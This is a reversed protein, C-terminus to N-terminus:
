FRKVGVIQYMEENSIALEIEFYPELLLSLEQIDPLKSSIHAVKIHHKELDEKSMSHAISISGGSKTCRSLNSILSDRNVFHPFANYIMVVDFQKDFSYFEADGCFINFEPFKRQAIEAMKPSIDIGTVSKVNRKKYDSLLVGTGCAVDLVDIGLTVKANDLIKLILEENRIIDNDWWSACNDFFETIEKKNM